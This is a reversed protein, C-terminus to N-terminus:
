IKKVRKKNKEIRRKCDNRSGKRKEKRCKNEEM